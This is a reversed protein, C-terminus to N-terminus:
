DSQGLNSIAWKPFGGASFFIGKVSQLSSALCRRGSIIFHGSHASQQMRRPKSFHSSRAFLLRILVAAEYEKSGNQLQM